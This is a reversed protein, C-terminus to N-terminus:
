FLKELEKVFFPLDKQVVECATVRQIADGLCVIQDTSKQKIEALATDFALNNGHMNSFIEIRM